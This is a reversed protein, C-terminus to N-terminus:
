RVKRFRARALIGGSEYRSLAREQVLLPRREWRSVSDALRGVSGEAMTIHIPSGNKNGRM